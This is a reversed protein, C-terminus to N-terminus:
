SVYDLFVEDHSGSPGHELVFKLNRGPILYTQVHRQFPFARDGFGFSVVEDMPAASPLTPM